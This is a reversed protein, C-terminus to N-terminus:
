GARKLLEEAQKRQADNGEAKVEELINRAGENDGMDMYARALDLKTSVEDVEEALQSIDFDDSDSVASKAQATAPEELDLGMDTMDMELAADMAPEAMDMGLDLSADLESDAEVGNAGTELGLDSAEFDLSFDDDVGADMASSTKAAPAAGPEEPLDLSFDGMDGMDLDMEVPAAAGAAPQEMASAISELDAALDLELGAPEEAQVPQQMIMTSETDLSASAPEVMGLDLDPSLELDAGADLELDTTQPKHPLLDDADFGPLADGGGSFLADGPCLERGMVVVRDWYSKVNGKRAHAEKALESFAGANKSAFYTELLKMRYDDREPHQSLANRLLDEAQQYIGYALYVDSEAIVDDRVEEAPAEEAKSVVTRELEAAPMQATSEMDAMGPQPKVVVPGVSEAFDDATLPAANLEAWQQENAQAAKRRRVVIAAGALILVLVGGLVPLSTAQAMLTDILSPEAPQPSVVPKPKAPTVPEAVVEPQEDAFVAPEQPEQLAQEPEATEVAAAALEEASKAAAAEVDQKTGALDAQLKALEADDMELVRQVRQELEALRASLNEKQLRESELAERALSLDRKLKQVDASADGTGATEGSQERGAGIINLRGEQEDADAVTAGEGGMAEDEMASAPSASALTQRYERWLATHQKVQALATQRDVALITDRNPMRLIYGRKIGHVNEKIFSEPNEHVLALMMQEVSVSEDPRLRSALSWLTDDGKVRYQGSVEAYQPLPQYSMGADTAAPTDVAAEATQQEPAAPQYAMIEEDSASEAQNAYGDGTEDTAAPEAAIEAPESFSPAPGEDLEPAGSTYVPPDLLLTYERLLHGNPWDVEVLFSLFPERVPDVTTIHIYAKDGKVETKFKLDQLTFSRDIGARAFAERSALKVILQEVEEPAVSLVEVTADLEQNLASKLEIEGLGLPTVTGPLLAAMVALSLTLKRM